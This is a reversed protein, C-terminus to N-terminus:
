QTHTKCTKPTPLIPFSVTMLPTMWNFVLKSFFSAGHERSVIREEPVPPVGGWKLPNLKKHWPLNKPQLETATTRVSADTANSRTQALNNDDEGDDGGADNRRSDTDTTTDGANSAEAAVPRSTDRLENSPDAVTSALADPTKLDKGVNDAM